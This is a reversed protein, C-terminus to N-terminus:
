LCHPSQTLYSHTHVVVTDNSIFVVNYEPPEDVYTIEEADFDLEIQHNTGRLSSFPIGNWSGSLPRHAHGFFLHRVNSYETVIAAFAQKDILGIKDLCPLHLDFPPHHMFFYVPYDRCDDLTQKLWSQRAACYHGSDSGELITDLFVFVGAPTKVTYQVFGNEDLPTNPFLDLLNERHDHNGMTLYCPILSRNIQESLFQYAATEGADSLDGSIVCCEADSHLANISDICPAFRAAPDLGHLKHNPDVLHTDTLHIFKV